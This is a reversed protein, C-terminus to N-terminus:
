TNKQPKEGEAKWGYQAALEEISSRTQEPKIGEAELLNDVLEM